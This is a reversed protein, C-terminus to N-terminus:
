NKLDVRRGLLCYWNIDGGDQKIKKCKKRYTHFTNKPIVVAGWCCASYVKDKKNTFADYALLLHERKQEDSLKYWGRSGVWNNSRDPTYTRKTPSLCTSKVSARTQVHHQTKRKKM